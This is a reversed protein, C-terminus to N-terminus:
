QRQEMLQKLVVLASTNQNIAEVLKPYQIFHFWALVCFAFIPFGIRNIFTAVVKFSLPMGEFDSQRRNPSM